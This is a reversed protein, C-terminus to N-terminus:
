TGEPTNLLLDVLKAGDITVKASRGEDVVEVTQVTGTVNERLGVALTIPKGVLGDLTDDAFRTGERAPIWVVITDGDPSCLRERAAKCPECVFEGSIEGVAPLQAVVTGTCGTHGYSICTCECPCQGALMADLPTNM